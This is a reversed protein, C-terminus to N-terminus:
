MCWRGAAANYSVHTKVSAYKLTKCKKKKILYIIGLLVFSM